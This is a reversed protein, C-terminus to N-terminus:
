LRRDGKLSEVVQKLGTEVNLWAADRNDWQV